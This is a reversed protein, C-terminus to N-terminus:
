DRPHLRAYSDQQIYSPHHVVHDVRDGIKNYPDIRPLNFRLDNETVADDLTTSVQQGFESFAAKNEQDFNPLHFRMTHLFDSNRNFVNGRTLDMWERLHDRGFDHGPMSRENKRIESPLAVSTDSGVQQTGLNKQEWVGM